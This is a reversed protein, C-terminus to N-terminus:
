HTRGASLNSFTVVTLFHVYGSAVVPVYAPRQAGQLKCIYEFHAAVAGESMGPQTFRM